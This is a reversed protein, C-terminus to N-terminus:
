GQGAAVRVQERWVDWARVSQAGITRRATDAEGSTLYRPEGLALASAQTHANIETYVARYVAEQVSSGVAVSGHGRMLAVTSEGLTEALAAGLASSTILLDTDDGAVDAIEFVPTPAGGLFGAMHIVPRMPTAVLSFPVVAPSHSHVVAMVEPRRRYIEAHIFRELYPKRPDQTRGDLDHELLDAATVSGPALNRSLWFTDAGPAVRMSVHGFADLVGQRVLIHNAAVLDAVTSLDAAPTTAQQTM